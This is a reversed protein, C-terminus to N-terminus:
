QKEPTLPGVSYTGRSPLSFGTESVDHTKFLLLVIDLTWVYSYLLKLSPIYSAYVYVISTSIKPSSVVHLLTMKTCLLMLVSIYSILNECRYNSLNIGEPIHHRTTRQLAVSTESSCTANMKLSCEAGKEHSM